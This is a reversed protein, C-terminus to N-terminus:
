ASLSLVNSLSVIEKDDDEIQIAESKAILKQEENGLRDMPKESATECASLSMLVGFLLLIWRNAKKGHPKM